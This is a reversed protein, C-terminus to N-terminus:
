APLSFSSDNAHDNEPSAPEPISSKQFNEVLAKTEEENPEWNDDGVKLHIEKREESM